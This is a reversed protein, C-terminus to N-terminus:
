KKDGGILMHLVFGFVILWLGILTGVGSVDPLRLTATAVLAIGLGQFTTIIYRMILIYSRKCLNAIIARKTRKQSWLKGSPEKHWAGSHGSSASSTGGSDPTHLQALTIRARCPTPLM